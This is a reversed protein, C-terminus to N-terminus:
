RFPIFVYKVQILDFFIKVAPKESPKHGVSVSAPRRFSFEERRRFIIFRLIPYFDGYHPVNEGQKAVTQVVYNRVMSLIESFIVPM